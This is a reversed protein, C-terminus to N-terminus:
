AVKDQRTAPGVAAAVIPVQYGGCKGILSAELHEWLGLVALAAETYADNRDRISNILNTLRRTM